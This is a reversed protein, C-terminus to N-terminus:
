ARSQPRDVKANAPETPATTVVLARFVIAFVLFITLRLSIFDDDDDM